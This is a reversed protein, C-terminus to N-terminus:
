ILREHTEIVEKVFIDIKERITELYSNDVGVPLIFPKMGPYYSMFWWQERGTIMMSFQVQHKYEAPLKGECLYRAHTAANPCKIELGSDDGILGDPSCHCGPFMDNTVLAVTDVKVGQVFEFLQRAEEEREIGIKMAETQKIQTKECTVLESALQYILTQRTKGQGGALANKISSGGLSGCRRRFWEETLQDINDIITIM